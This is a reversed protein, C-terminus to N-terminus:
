GNLAEVFRAMAEERTGIKAQILEKHQENRSGDAQRIAEVASGIEGVDYMWATEGDVCHDFCGCSRIDPFVVACGCMAAQMPPNHLGEKKSTVVWTGVVNYLACLQTHNMDTNLYRFHEKTFAKTAKNQDASAGYGVYAYEDGLAKVIREVLAFNKRKKSSVLFGLTKADVRLGQDEWEFMDLGQYCITNEVGHGNFWEHLNVSNVLTTVSSAHRILKKKEIKAPYDLLRCWYFPKAKKPMRTLMPKIDNSSVAICVDTDKPISSLAKRHPFWSFRDVKTVVNADHGMQRLARVSKLITASGGNNALGGYYPHGAYFTIKMSFEGCSERGEEGATAM